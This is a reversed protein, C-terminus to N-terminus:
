QSAEEAAFRVQLFAACSGLAEDAYNYADSCKQLNASPMGSAADPLSAVGAVGWDEDRYYWAKNANIAALMDDYGASDVSAFLNPNYNIQGTLVFSSFQSPWVWYLTITVPETTATSNVGYFDSSKVTLEDDLVPNSYYGNEYSRFFVIHGRFLNALEDKTLSTAAASSDSSSSSESRLEVNREITITIDHVDKALPTVVVQLQGSSGPRLSSGDYNNLNISQTVSLSDNSELTSPKEAASTSSREYYGVQADSGAAGLLAYRGQAASITSTTANVGNNSAFWALSVFIIILAAIVFLGSVAFRKWFDKLTQAHADAVARCEQATRQELNTHKQQSKM